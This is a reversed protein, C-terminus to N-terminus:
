LVTYAIFSERMSNWEEVELEGLRVLFLDEAQDLLALLEGDLLTEAQVLSDLRDGLPFPVGATGAPTGEGLSITSLGYPKAM